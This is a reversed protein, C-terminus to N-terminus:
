WRREMGWTGVGCRTWVMEVRGAEWRGMRGGRVALRMM